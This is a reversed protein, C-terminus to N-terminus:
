RPPLRCDSVYVIEHLLIAKKKLALVLHYSKVLRSAMGLGQLGMQWLSVHSELGGMECLSVHDGLGGMQWLSVPSELGGMECLSVHGGLGGM